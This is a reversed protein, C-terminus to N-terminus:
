DITNLTRLRILNFYYILKKNRLYFWCFSFHFKFYSNSNKQKVSQIRWQISSILHTKEFDTCAIVILAVTDQRWTHTCLRSQLDAKPRSLVDRDYFLSKARSWPFVCYTADHVRIRLITWRNELPELTSCVSAYTRLAGNRSRDERGAGSVELSYRSIRERLFM